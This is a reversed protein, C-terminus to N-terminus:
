VENQLAKRNHQDKQNNYIDKMSTPKRKLYDVKSGLPLGVHCLSPLLCPFGPSTQSLNM